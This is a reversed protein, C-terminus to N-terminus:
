NVERGAQGERQTTREVLDRGLHEQQRGGVDIHRGLLTAPDSFGAEVCVLLRKRARTPVSALIRTMEDNPRPELQHQEKLDKPKRQEDEPQQEDSPDDDLEDAREATVPTGAT